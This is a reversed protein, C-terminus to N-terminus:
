ARKELEMNFAKLFVKRRDIMLHQFQLKQTFHMFRRKPVRRINVICKMLKENVINKISINENKEFTEVCRKGNPLEMLKLNRHIVEESALIRKGVVKNSYEAKAVAFIDELTKCQKAIALSTKYGVGKIGKIHDSPDGVLVRSLLYQRPTLGFRKIIAAEDYLVKQVPNYVKVNKSILQFMDKDASVIIIEADDLVNAELMYNALVAIWDDAEIGFSAVQPIKFWKFFIRTLKMQVHFDNMKQQHEDNKYLGRNSKYSPDISKRRASKGFDWTYIFYPTDFKELCTMTMSLIGFLVTTGLGDLTRFDGMIFTRFAQNNGDFLLIRKKM